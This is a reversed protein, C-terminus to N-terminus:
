FRRYATRSIQAVPFRDCTSPKGRKYVTSVSQNSGVPASESPVLPVTRNSGWNLDQRRPELREEHRKGYRSSLLSPVTNNPGNSRGASGAGGAVSPSYM